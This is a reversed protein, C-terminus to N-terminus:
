QRFGKLNDMGRLHSGSEIWINLQQFVTLIAYDFGSLIRCVSDTCRMYSAMEDLHGPKGFHCFSLHIRAAKTSLAGM